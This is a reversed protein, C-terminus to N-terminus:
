KTQTFPLLALIRARKIELALRRQQKQTLGTKERPLIMGQANIFNSLVEPQKYSFVFDKAVTMKKSPRGLKSSHEKRNKKIM